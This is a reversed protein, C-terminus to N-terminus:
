PVGAVARKAEDLGSVGPDARSWNSLLQRYQKRAALRDGAAASARALGLVSASRNPWRALAQQFAAVAERPRQLELLIEGRLESAPKVPRPPGLPPPLAKELAVAEEALQVARAGRGGRLDVVAAVEKEMVAADPKQDQSRRRLENQAQVALQPRGTEAASMGIAFLEASTSFDTQSRLTEWSRTEIVYQARMQSQVAKLRSAGTETVAPQILDLTESAKRFRGQQLAEYCLWSLSHYDRFGIGFGRRKTWAVSQAFAAEDSAAAEGWRGLQLFIHAPMHLAHSSEPAVKAYSRAASLALAAHGPDDYDHILYHLAGPHEPNEKLVKGLISAVRAQTESGVLAHQHSDENPDSYQAPSRLATALLALAYFSAVDPDDPHRAYLRAMAEAYALDRAKKDGAGYLVEVAALLARERESGARAARAEPTPGLRRLASRAADADQNLWLTQNHAMAEGWYAMAFGPDVRQAGQFELLAEEYDFSHLAAVGRLFQGQASRPSPPALGLILLGLLAAPPADRPRV